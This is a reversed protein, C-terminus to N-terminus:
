LFLHILGSIGSYILLLSIFGTSSGTQLLTSAPFGCVTVMKKTGQFFVQLITHEVRISRFLEIPLICFEACFVSYGFFGINIGEGHILCLEATRWREVWFPCRIVGARPKARNPGLMNSKIEFDGRGGKEFPPFIAVGKILPPLM